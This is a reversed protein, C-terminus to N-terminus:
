PVNKREPGYDELSQGRQCNQQVREHARERAQHPWGQQRNEHAKRLNQAEKARIAM